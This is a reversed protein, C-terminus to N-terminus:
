QVGGTGTRPAAVDAVDAVDSTLANRISITNRILGCCVRM